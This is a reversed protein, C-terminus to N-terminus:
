GKSYLPRFIDKAVRKWSIGADLIYPTNSGRRRYAKITHHKLGPVVKYNLEIVDMGTSFDAAVDTKM